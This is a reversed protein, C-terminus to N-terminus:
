FVKMRKYDKRVIEMYLHVNKYLKEYFEKLLTSRIFAGTHDKSKYDDLCLCSFYTCAM